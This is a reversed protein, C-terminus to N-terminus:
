YLGLAVGVDSGGQRKGGGFLEHRSTDEQIIEVTEEDM